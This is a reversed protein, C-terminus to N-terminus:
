FIIFIIKEKLYKEEYTKAKPEITRNLHYACEKFEVIHSKLNLKFVHMLNYMTTEKDEIIPSNKNKINTISQSFNSMTNIFKNIIDSFINFSNYFRKSKEHLFEIKGYLKDEYKNSEEEM